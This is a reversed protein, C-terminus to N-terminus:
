NTKRKMFNKEYDKPNKHKISFQEKYENLLYKDLQKLKLKVAKETTM